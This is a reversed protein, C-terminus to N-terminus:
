KNFLSKLKGNALERLKDAKFIFQGEKIIYSSGKKPIKIKWDDHSTSKFQISIKKVLENINYNVYILYNNELAWDYANLIQEDSILGGKLCCAIFIIRKKLKENTNDWDDSQEDIPPGYDTRNEPVSEEEEIIVTDVVEYVIEDQSSDNKTNIPKTKNKLNM